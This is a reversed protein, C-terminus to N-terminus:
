RPRYQRCPVTEQKALEKMMTESLGDPNRSAVSLTQGRRSRVEEHVSKKARGYIESKKRFNKRLISGKIAWEKLEDDDM